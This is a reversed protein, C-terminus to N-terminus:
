GAPAPPIGLFEEDNLDVANWDSKESSVNQKKLKEASEKWDSSQAVANDPVIPDPMVGTDPSSGSAVQPVHEPDADVAESAHPTAPTMVPAVVSAAPPAVPAVPAASLGTGVPSTMTRPLQEALQDDALVRVRAEIDSWSSQRAVDLDYEAQLRLWMEAGTGFYRGFRLATDATIGRKANTIDSIRGVPVDIDRALQNRSIGLPEMARMLLIRGPHMPASNESM